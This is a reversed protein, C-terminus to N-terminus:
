SINRAIKIFTLFFALRRTITGCCINTYNSKQRSENGNREATIVNLAQNEKCWIVLMLKLIEELKHRLHNHDDESDATFGNELSIFLLSYSLFLFM